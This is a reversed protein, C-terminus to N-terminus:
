LSIGRSLGFVFLSDLIDVGRIPCMGCQNYPGFGMNLYASELLIPPYRLMM